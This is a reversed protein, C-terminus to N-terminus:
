VRCTLCILKRERSSSSSSSSGGGGAVAAWAYPVAGERTANICAVVFGCGGCKNFFDVSRDMGGRGAPWAPCGAPSM